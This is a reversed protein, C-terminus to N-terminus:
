PCHRADLRRGQPLSVNPILLASETPREAARREVEQVLLPASATRNAVILPRRSSATDM